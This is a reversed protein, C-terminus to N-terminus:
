ATRAPVTVELSKFEEKESESDLASSKIACCSDPKPGGPREARECNIGFAAFHHCPIFGLGGNPECDFARAGCIWGVWDTSGGNCIKFRMQVEPGTGKGIELLNVAIVGSGLLPVLVGGAVGASRKKM